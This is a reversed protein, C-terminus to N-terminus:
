IYNILKYYYIYRHLYNPIKVFKIFDLFDKNTGTIIINKVTNKVIIDNTNKVIIDNTNKVIKKM